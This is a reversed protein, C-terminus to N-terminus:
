VGISRKSEILSTSGLIDISNECEIPQNEGVEGTTTTATTLHVIDYLNTFM